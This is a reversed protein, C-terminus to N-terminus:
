APQEVSLVLDLLKAAAPSHARDIARSVHPSATAYGDLDNRRLQGAVAFEELPDPSLRLGDPQQAMRVDNVDGVEAYCADAGVSIGCGIQHHFIELAM